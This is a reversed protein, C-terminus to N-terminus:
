RANSMLVADLADLLASQSPMDAIRRQRWPLDGLARDAARSISLAVVKGCLEGVGADTALRVFIAATRPSFFMALDIAGAEFADKAARSLAMAAHAEYLVARDLAFGCGRLDGALDGAVVTGAVHVLRGNRPSLRAAVLRALDAVDGGASAVASFGLAQARAATAEGVAFLPLDRVGSARALARVGNASTCLVAQVGALDLPAATRYRIELLPEILAAVGRRALAAALAEAEERPRTVLAQPLRPSM